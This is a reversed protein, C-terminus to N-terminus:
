RGEVVALCTIMSVACVFVSCMCVCEIVCDNVICLERKRCKFLHQKNTLLMGSLSVPSSYLIKILGTYNNM